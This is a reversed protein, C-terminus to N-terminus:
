VKWISFSCVKFNSIEKQYKSHLCFTWWFINLVTVIWGLIRRLYGEFQPFGGCSRYKSVSFLLESLIWNVWKMNWLLWHLTRNLWKARIEGEILTLILWFVMCGQAQQFASAESASYFWSISLFSHFDVCFVVLHFM